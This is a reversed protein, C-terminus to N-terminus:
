VSMILFIIAITSIFIFSFALSFFINAWKSSRIQKEPLKLNDPIKDVNIIGKELYNKIAYDSISNYNRAGNLDGVEKRADGASYIGDTDLQILTRKLPMTVLVADDKSNGFEFIYQNSGSAFRKADREILAEDYIATNPNPITGKAKINRDQLAAFEGETWLMTMPTNNPTFNTIPTANLKMARTGRSDKGTLNISGILMAEPNEFTVNYDAKKTDPNILSSAIEGCSSINIDPAYLTAVDYIGGNIGKRWINNINDTNRCNDILHRYDQWLNIHTKHYAEKIDYPDALHKIQNTDEVQAMAYAVIYGRNEGLSTSFPKDASAMTGRDIYQQLVPDWTMSAEAVTSDDTSSLKGDEIHGRFVDNASLYINFDKLEKSDIASYLVVKVIQAKTTHRNIITFDSTWGKSSFFAPFILADGKTGPADLTIQSNAEFNRTDNFIYKGLSSTANNDPIDVKYITGNSNTDFAMAGSTMVAVAAAASLLKKTNM